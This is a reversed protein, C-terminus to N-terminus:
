LRNNYVFQGSWDVFESHLDESGRIAAWCVECRYNTTKRNCEIGMWPIGKCKTQGSRVTPEYARKVRTPMVYKVNQEEIYALMRRYVHDNFEFEVEPWYRKMMKHVPRLYKKGAQFMNYYAVKCGREQRPKILYGKKLNRFTQRRRLYGRNSIEYQKDIQRWQM